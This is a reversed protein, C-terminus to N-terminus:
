MTEKIKVRNLITVNEAHKKVTGRIEVTTGPTYEKSNYFSIKYGEKTISVYRFVPCITQHIYYCSAVTVQTDVRMGVEGVYGWVSHQTLSEEQVQRQYSAIQSNVVGIKSKDQPVIFEELAITGALVSEFDSLRGSLAKMALRSSLYQQAEKGIRRDQETVVGDALAQKAVDRNPIKVVIHVDNEDFAYQPMKIYGGNVNTAYVAAGWIDAASYAVPDTKPM